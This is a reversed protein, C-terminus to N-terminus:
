ADVRFLVKLTLFLYSIARPPDAFAIGSVNDAFGLPCLGKGQVSLRETAQGLEVLERGRVWVMSMM